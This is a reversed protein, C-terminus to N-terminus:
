YRNKETIVIVGGCDEIQVNLGMSMECIIYLDQSKASVSM